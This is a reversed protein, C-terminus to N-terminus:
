LGSWFDAKSLQSAKLVDLFKANASMSEVTQSIKRHNNPLPHAEFFATIEDAKEKTSFGGACMVICADMLSPAAKGLMVKIRDFNDQFYQWSIKRGERSSHGVSGMAYFFDQLKVEGSTTWDMTALKLKADPTSGLSGLVHKREANDTATYFYSKVEEYEKAGGNKLIIKFVATRMDSPLSTVNNADEQFARFRTLAEQSVVPDDYAFASLLNIMIGRLLTTLHGDSVQSEWGVKKMLKLVIGKAFAKLSASMAEDDLLISDLGGLVGSLGQWVIYEDEDKYNGMLLILSEPTSHGAKVLAYSDSLLSARDIPSLAKTQIAVALRKFMEESPLVRMPVEQGANLKVWGGVSIPITV